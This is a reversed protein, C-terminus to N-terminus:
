DWDEPYNEPHEEKVHENWIDIAEDVDDANSLDVPEDCGQCRAEGHEHVAEHFEYHEPKLAM